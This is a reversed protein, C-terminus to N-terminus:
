TASRDHDHDHHDDHEPGPHPRLDDDRRHSALIWVLPDGDDVTVGAARLRHRALLRRHAAYTLVHAVIGGVPFSEPPDCLADIVVDDWGGREHVERLIARWRGSVGEHRAVLEAASAAPDQGGPHDGGELAAVWVEKTHVHATLLAALSPEPGSWSMVTTDGPVEAQWDEQGLSASLELLVTTDQLDHEVMAATVSPASRRASGEVWLSTPPHFHVGNPAPLWHPRPDASAATRAASPAYGHARQFARSFGDASDYGAAQAADAVTHGLRLQWAARELLVRRRLAVPPEGTQDRVQRAFHFASAHAGAAMRPLTPNDPDLVADLLERLRDRGSPPPNTATQAPPTDAM